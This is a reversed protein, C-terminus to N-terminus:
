ALANSRGIKWSWLIFAGTFAWSIEERSNNDSTLCGWTFQQVTSHIDFPSVVERPLPNTQRSCTARAQCLSESLFWMRQSLEAKGGANKASRSFNCCLLYKTYKANAFQLCRRKWKTQTNDQHKKLSKELPSVEDIKKRNLETHIDPCFTHTHIHTHPTWTCGLTQIRHTQKVPLDAQSVLWGHDPSTFSPDLDFDEVLPHILNCHFGGGTMALTTYVTLERGQCWRPKMLTEHALIASPSPCMM